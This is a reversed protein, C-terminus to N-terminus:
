RDVEGLIPDLSGVVVVIDSMTLGPCVYPILSMSHLSPPRVKLRYPSSSHKKDTHSLLWTGLEGRPSELGAYASKGGAIKVAGPLKVPKLATIPGEPIGDVLTTAIRISEQIEDMRVSFRAFADGETRVPVAVDIDGYAGYPADRRLDFDVGSARLNPGSVGCEMALMPDIYGVGVSRARFVPNNTVLQEYEHLRASIRSLTEKVAKDWGAPVDHRNGGVTHTNYHFRCGTLQEFLDLILERERFTYMFVTAGGGM